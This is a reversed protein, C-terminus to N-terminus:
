EEREMLEDLFFTNTNAKTGNKSVVTVRVYGYTPDLPFEAYTILEGDKAKQSNALTIATNFIVREAGECEICIKKDEYWLNQIVPGFSAYFDGNALAKTIARYELKEAKIMIYGGFSDESKNHNDDTDVCYIRKNQRLLDDYVRQNYEPYGIVYNHYNFMEMADMGEYRSYVEYSDLSWTPHKYIVFFGREKAKKIAANVCEVSYSREFDEDEEYFEQKVIDKVRDNPGYKTRHYLPNKRNEPDLAILGIHTSKKDIFPVPTGDPYHECFNIETANLAVFNEDSLYDNHCVLINHDSFAVVSYGKEMYMQKLEEPTKQGDSVTSHCHLNAKYFSGDKPLLYKRM